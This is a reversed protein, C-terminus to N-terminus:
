KQMRAPPMADAVTLFSGFVIIRDAEGAESRAAEFAQAVTGFSRVAAPAVGAAVLADVLAQAPAGRPGPLAAVFWRDVSRKMAEVVGAIDKDGLMGFVALARERYGTADLTTALVRAADPNHAVDLIM